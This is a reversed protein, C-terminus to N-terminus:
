AASSACGVEAVDERPVTRPGGSDMFEDHKGVLLQRRGGAQDILGGPHVITYPVGAPLRLFPPPLPPTRPCAPSPGAPDMTLM